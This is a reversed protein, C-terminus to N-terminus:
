IKRFVFKQGKIYMTITGNSNIYMTKSFAGTSVNSGCTNGTYELKLKNGILNYSYVYSCGADAVSMEVAGYWGGADSSFRLYFTHGNEESYYIDNDVEFRLDNSKENTTNTKSKVLNSTNDRFTVISLLLMGVGVGLFSLYIKWTEKILYRILFLLGISIIAFILFVFFSESKFGIIVSSFVNLLFIFKIFNINVYKVEESEVRNKQRETKIENEYYNESYTDKKTAEVHENKISSNRIDNNNLLKNKMLLFEGKTIAGNDLLVKLNKLEEIKDM